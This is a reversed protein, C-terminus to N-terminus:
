LPGYTEDTAEYWIKNEQENLEEQFYPEISHKNYVARIDKSLKAQLGSYKMRNCIATDGDGGMENYVLRIDFEKDPDRYYDIDFENNDFKTLPIDKKNKVYYPAPIEGELGANTAESSDSEADDDIPTEDDANNINDILLKIKQEPSFTISKKVIQKDHKPKNYMFLALLGVLAIVPIAYQLGHNNIIVGVVVICIFVIIILNFM